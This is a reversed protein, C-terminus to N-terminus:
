SFLKNVSEEIIEILRLDNKFEFRKNLLQNRVAYSGISLRIFSKEGYQVPQGLFIRNYKEMGDHENTVLFDYLRQLDANNLAKGKVLVMFSVISDNTLEMDPMLQFYDSLALGGTVIQNWRRIFANTEEQPFSLYAEMESLAVEWRLRLGVNKFPILNERINQLEEPFDFASFIRNFYKAPSGSVEKLMKTWKTPVLLAGCYPPAQYFKSGTVMILVNKSILDYILKRDTRFQCMDVVWMIEPFDDIILLDDKIGSKSGFVLNGIIPEGSNRTIIERIAENRNEIHGQKERAALYYVNSDIGTSIYEGCPIEQGFQNLQSFYKCEAAQKSGSGLEEPCSVINIITRNPKLMRQFLLPLYMMDTGSPGYYVDFELESNNLLNRLRNTQEHLINSYNEESYSGVFRKAVEFGFPSFTGCTCSGRQFLGDFKLPNLHYKNTNTDSRLIIREDCGSTVIQLLEDSINQM